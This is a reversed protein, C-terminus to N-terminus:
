PLDEQEPESAIAEVESDYTLDKRTEEIKRRLHFTRAEAQRLITSYTRARVKINESGWDVQVDPAVTTGLVYCIIDANAKVKGSAQIAMAYDEAQRREERTVNFGGRKLEVILVKDIGDVEHQEDFGDRTFISLSANPLAVIDPRRRTDNNQEAVNGVMGRIITALTRNSWFDVSEYEPGFIWLGRDFLPHIDHLEDSMDSEVVAELRRILNLRQELEDLVLKAERVSWSDLIETLKDVEDVKLQALQELLRYGTRAEELRTFVTVAATLDKQQITPHAIQLEDAFVGVSERSARPLKQLNAKNARLAAKKRDKRVDGMLEHIWHLIVGNVTTTIYESKESPQFWMWDSEVQDALVDAKVVFTFRRAQSRRADLYPTDVGRWSSEGVLRKNVWWAVGHQKSTRGKAKSDFLLIPVSGYPKVDVTRTEVVLHELDTLKIPNGNVFIHFSPDVVFKSGILDSIAGVSIHRGLHMLSTSVRTGHNGKPYEREHTITFPGNRSSDQIVKFHNCIGDRWTEVEYEIDFCFLAHRGKGNRGFAKRQGQRKGSPFLVDPGQHAHRNYNLVPWRETFEDFTMGMGNDEIVIPLTKPEMPWTIHVQDAGADWCNAVIEVIAIKPDEIITRAHDRMFDLGFRVPISAANEFANQSSMM